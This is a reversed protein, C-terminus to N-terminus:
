VGGGIIELVVLADEGAWQSILTLVLCLVSTELDEVGSGSVIKLDEM